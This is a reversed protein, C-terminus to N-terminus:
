RLWLQDAIIGSYPHFHYNRVRASVFDIGKLDVLPLWAARAVLQRDIRAWGSAAARPNTSLLSQARNNEAAVRRDCFWAQNGQGACSFWTAFYGYPTDGWAVQALQVHNFLGPHRNSFSLPVLHVSARYGLRRLVRAVYEDAARNGADSADDIRVATGRTGSATVLREAEPLNPAKWRGAPGPKRTYPCTRHYGPVGPPLVQCTPSAQDRGGYLQVLLRRDIAFNLARRVRIDDFPPLRTNLTYFAKTPITGPHLQGPFRAKLIPLMRKPIPDTSYDARGEEVEQIEAAHTLGFRTVIENPNGAPQAAHSWEQFYPNRVYHIEHASASAIKYPGTGPIPTFGIAHFPTGPPIPPLPRNALNSLFSRDPRRLHIIVTGTSDETVIGKSLDCRRARAANCAQAGVIDTFNVAALARPDRLSFLREFSRRFDSARVPRGDSYPVDRRLRFTYTTGGDTPEPLTLALDPVLQTGATGPAHNYTVLGDATLNDAQLPLLDVNLHPDITTTTNTLLTEHLLRLTGGHHQVLRASAEWVKTGAMALAVPEGGVHRTAVVANSNPDIRVVTGSNGNAVWVSRNAVVIADPGSGVGISPGATGSQRDIRTVTGDLQNAVWVASARPGSRWSM